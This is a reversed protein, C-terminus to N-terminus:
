YMSGYFRIKEYIAFFSSWHHQQKASKRYIAFKKDCIRFHKCYFIPECIRLDFGQTRLRRIQPGIQPLTWCQETSLCYSRLSLKKQLPQDSIKLIPSESLLRLCGM